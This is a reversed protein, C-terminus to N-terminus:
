GVDFNIQTGGENFAKLLTGGTYIATQSAAGCAALTGFERTVAVGLLSVDATVSKPTFANNTMQVSGFPSQTAITYRCIENAASHTVNHGNYVTIVIKNTGPCQVHALAAAPETLLFDCSNMNVTADFTNELLIVHCATGASGYTANITISSSAESLSGTFTAEDCTLTRNGGIVFNHTTSQEGKITAPYEAATYQVAQAGSAVMASMAVLAMVALGLLKLNRTM